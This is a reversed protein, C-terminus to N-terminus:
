RSCNRRRRSRGRRAAPLLELEECHRILKAPVGSARAAERIEMMLRSGSAIHEAHGSM